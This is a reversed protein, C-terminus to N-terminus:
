QASIEESFLRGPFLVWSYTKFTRLINLSYDSESFLFIDGSRQYPIYQSYNILM